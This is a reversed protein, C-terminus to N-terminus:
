RSDPLNPRNYHLVITDIFQALHEQREKLLLSTQAHVTERQHRVVVVAQQDDIGAHRRELGVKRPLLNRRAAPDRGALLADAGAVELIDALRRAVAGEKLHQAIEGEPIIELLLRNRPRPLKQCRAHTQVRLAQVGRNVLPIVLRVMDPEVVHVDRRLANVPEPLRVVEPLMAGAGAAWAGLNIIVAALLVAAPRLIDHAALAVAEHLDPVDNEGLVVVIAVAM